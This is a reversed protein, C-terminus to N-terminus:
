KKIILFSYILFSYFRKALAKRKIYIEEESLQKKACSWNLSVYMDFYDDYIFLWYHKIRHFYRNGFEIYKFVLSNLLNGIDELSNCTMIKQSFLRM